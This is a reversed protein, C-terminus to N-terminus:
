RFATLVSVGTPRPSRANHQTLVRKAELVDRSGGLAIVVGGEAM